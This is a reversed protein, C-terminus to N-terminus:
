TSVDYKLIITFMADNIDNAPDVSFGLVDGKSFTNTGTFVFQETTNASFLISTVSDTYSTSPYETGDTEKHFGITTAGAIAESRFMIKVLSGDYPAIMVTNETSFNFSTLPRTAGSLSLVVFTGASQNYNMGAILTCYQETSIKEDVYVKTTADADVTPTYTSGGYKLLINGAGADLVIDGDADLTISGTCGITSDSIMQIQRNNTGESPQTSLYINAATTISFGGDDFDNSVYLGAFIGSAKTATISPNIYVGYHSPAAFGGDYGNCEGSIKIQAGNSADYTRDYDIILGANADTDSGNGIAAFGEVDMNGSLKLTVFQPSSGTGLGVDSSTTNSNLLTSISTLGTGGDSAALTGTISSASLDVALETTEIVIGGNSKLDTSFETGSLDLGDGATYTTDTDTVTSDITIVGDSTSTTTIGTGAAITVTDGHIVTTNATETTGKLTFSTQGYTDTDTVTSSITVEGVDTTECTIGAGAVFMLDEGETITIATTDTTASVTFGDGMDITDTDTYSSAITLDSGSPTLTVNSGAVIKIDQTGSGHSSQTLRLLADDSSDVWSTAYENQTNTDTDTDTPIVWTGDQRLFKTSGTEGPTPVLGDTSDNFSSYTTNTDTAAFDLTGTAEDYTVAINTETNSEVMAGVVDQIEEDTSGGGGTGWELGNEGANVKLVQGVTGLDDRGTGGFLYPLPASLGAGLTVEGDLRIDGSAVWLSYSNTLSAINAGTTIADKIYVTAANTIDVSSNDSNVEPAEVRVHNFHPLTGSTDTVNDVITTTDIHIAAGDSTSSTEGGAGDPYNGNVPIYLGSPMTIRKPYISGSLATIGEFTVGTTLSEAYIVGAKIYDGKFEVVGSNNITMAQTGDQATIEPTAIKGSSALTVTGTENISLLTTLTSDPEFAKIVFNNETGSADLDIINNISGNAKITIGSGVASTSEINQVDISRSSNFTIGTNDIDFIKTGDVQVEMDSNSNLKDVLSVGSSDETIVKKWSAM